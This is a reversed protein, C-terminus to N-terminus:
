IEETATMTELMMAARARKMAMTTMTNNTYVLYLFDPDLSSSTSSALVLPPLELSECSGVFEEKEVNM